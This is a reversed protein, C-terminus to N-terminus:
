RQLLMTRSDSWRGSTVRFYYTGAPLSAADWTLQYSGESLEADMLTAVLAGRTNFIEVTTHGSKGVTFQIRTQAAFPNPDNQRLLYGAVNSSLGVSSTTDVDKFVAKGTWHSTDRYRTTNVLFKATTRFTGSDKPNFVVNITVCQNPGLKASRLKNMDGQPIDFGQEISVVPFGGGSTFKVTDAGVNCLELPLVKSADVYVEGFDLDGMRLLPDATVSSVPLRFESCETLLQLTDRYAKGNAPAMHAVTITATQNPKLTLTAPETGVVTFGQNGRSFKLQSIKLDRGLPNTIAVQQTHQASDFPIKGFDLMAPMTLREAYYSYPIETAAGTRDKIVLTGSADKSPDIPVVSVKADRIGVIQFATTPEKFVVKANVASDNMVISRLGAAELTLTHINVSLESCTTQSTIELTDAVKLVKRMPALPYGYAISTREFYKGKSGGSGSKFSELGKVLGYVQGTFTAGPEARVYYSIGPDVTMTGWVLTTNPITGRNFVFPRESTTTSGYYIMGDFSADAVVNVYHLMDGPHAEVYFPAFSAWQERPILDAMYTSVSEFSAGTITTGGGWGGGGTSPKNTLKVAATSNMVAQAPKDTKIYVAQATGTVRFENFYSNLTFFNNKQAGLTQQYIGRTTDKSSGYVRIFESARKGDTNENTQGTIRYIDWTPTYVFETGHQDAPALWEVMMNKFTNQSIGGEFNTVSTRTNGSIVAIPKTASIRSGGFDPQATGINATLTDVYSELIYAQNAMLTLFTMQNSPIQGNPYITVVTNDNAAIVMIQAPAAKNKKNIKTSGVTADAVIDGQLTAAYYETGWAEVPLPTWAEAGFKTIVHCYMLFPYKGQVRYTNNSPIGPTTVVPQAVTTLDVSSMVGGKVAFAKSFGTGSTFRISDDVTSYLYVLFKDQMQYANAADNVNAVTDPFAIIYTSGGQFEDFALSPTQSHLGTAILLMAAIALLPYRMNSVKRM